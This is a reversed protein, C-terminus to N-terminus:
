SVARGLSRPEFELDASEVLCGHLCLQCLLPKSEKGHTLFNHLFQPCAKLSPLRLLLTQVQQGYPIVFSKPSPFAIM